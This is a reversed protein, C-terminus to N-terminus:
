IDPISFKKAHIVEANQPIRLEMQSKCHFALGKYSTLYKFSNSFVGPSKIVVLPQEQKEVIKLFAQSEVRILTGCAKIANAIIAVMTATSAGVAEGSM